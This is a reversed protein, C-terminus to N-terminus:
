GLVANLFQEMGKMSNINYVEHPYDKPLIKRLLGALVRGPGIEAFIEVQEDMLRNMADFWKVPSCLQKVMIAKIEDPKEAVDATVNLVIKHGPAEFDITELYDKFADGAKEMLASHWAGSVKLPISRAGQASAATSAQAVADPEGTIVIQTESNHNAVSVIGLQQAETVIKDVADIPLGIIAHMAGKHILSKRHMLDGRKFVLQLTDEASIVEAACLASYEGLSHGASVFPVVGEKKLAALWALNVTTVAPQLNVTM